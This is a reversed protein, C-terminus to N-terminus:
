RQRGLRAIWPENARIRAWRREVAKGSREGFLAAIEDNSYGESKAWVISRDRETLKELQRRLADRDAVRSAPDESMRYGVRGVVLTDLEAADPIPITDADARRWRRFEGVFAIVCGTVFYTALNVGGDARWGTRNQADQRFKRVAEAVAGNVLHERDRERVLLREADTPSLPMGKTAAETFIKGSGAWADIVVLGHRVLRDAFLDWSRGRFDAAQLAEFLAREVDSVDSDSADDPPEEGSKSGEDDSRWM